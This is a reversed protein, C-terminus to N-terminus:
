VASSVRNLLAMGARVWLPGDSPTPMRAVYSAYPLTCKGADRDNGVKGVKRERAERERSGTASDGGNDVLQVGGVFRQDLWRNGGVWRKGLWGNGGERRDLWRSGGGGNGTQM